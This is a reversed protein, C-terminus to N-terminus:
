LSPVLGTLNWRLSLCASGLRAQSRLRVSNVLGSLKIMQVSDRCLILLQVYTTSFVSISALSGPAVRTVRAFPFHSTTAPNTAGAALAEPLVNEIDKMVSKHDNIMGQLYILVKLECLFSFVTSNM